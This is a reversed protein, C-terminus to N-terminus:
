GYKDFDFDFGSVCDNAKQKVYIKPCDRLRHKSM